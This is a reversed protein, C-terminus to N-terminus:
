SELLDYRRLSGLDAVCCSAFEEIFTLQLHRLIEDAAPSPSKIEAVRLYDCFFLWKFLREARETESRRLM